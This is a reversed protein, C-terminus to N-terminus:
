QELFKQVRALWARYEGEEKDAIFNVLYDALELNIGREALYDEFGDQVDDDLGHYEPGEYPDPLDKTAAQGIRVSRLEIRSGDTVCDFTLKRDDGKEIEVVFAVGHSAEEEEEEEEDNEETDVIPDMEHRTNDAHASSTIKITESGMKRTLVVENNLEKSVLEFGEPIVLDEAPEDEEDLKAEEKIEKALIEALAKESSPVTSSAFPQSFVLPAMANGSSQKTAVSTVTARMGTAM